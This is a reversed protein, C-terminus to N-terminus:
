TTSLLFWAEVRTWDSVGGTLETVAGDDRRSSVTRARGRKSSSWNAAGTTPCLKRCTLSRETELVLYSTSVLQRRQRWGEGTRVQGGQGGRKEAPKVGPARTHCVPRIGRRVM